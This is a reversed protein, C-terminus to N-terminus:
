DKEKWQIYDEVKKIEIEIRPNKKDYFVRSGDHGAIVDRNDDALVDTYVLMDDVAELLNTLDIKRRTQTYFVAKVNVPCNIKKRYEKPIMWNCEKEFQKYLESPIIIPRGKSIILRQSNKKTRPIVNLVFKM